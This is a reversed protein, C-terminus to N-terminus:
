DYSLGFGFPYLTDEDDYGPADPAQEVIAHASNALAFPLKGTPAVHGSVIDMIAADSVGFTALIAGANKLGSATDLVYPQRFYISLVVNDKGVAAMVAKIDNLSPTIEWSASGKSVMDSFALFDVDEPKAGGFIQTDMVFQRAADDDEPFAGPRSKNHVAIKILAYDTDLPVTPRAENAQADYDGTTVSFGWKSDAAVRPNIGMTYLKVPSGNQPVKLPLLKNNQLLVISKRQANEGKQRFVKNGLVSIAENPDVYPNEFLGLKFQVGLLKRASEDVRSVSLKGTTVLDLIQENSHFGSLVDTGAEIALVLRENVTKDLLGWAMWNIIGTDSNVVGTYGLEDKLLDTVVGKSFAMGMDNPHYRQGVPIGYYPMVAAVGADVATRFPKLHYDFMDAPYVQNQGYQYHPDLGREQPGGGPFHKMTLVISDAGISEGQLNKILTSVIDSMLNSDETFTEHVRFWRPETSLDAMYGYMGRLGIASWESRMTQAFEKILEMDRTAALGAEKPWASFAGAANNIGYRADHTVHNRANSKFLIPIGLRTAEATAQTQNMFQVAASPTIDPGSRSSGQAPTNTVNNRFIFRTMKEDNIYGLGKSSLAGGVEANLTDILMMGVKEELSMQELLDNIREPYPLRWDEYPDLTFNKNLDKFQYGDQRIVPVHRAAIIPQTARDLEDTTIPKEPSSSCGALYLGAVLLNPLLAVTPFTSMHVGISLPRM